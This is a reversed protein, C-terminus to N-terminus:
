FNETNPKKKNKKGETEEEEEEGMEPKESVEPTCYRQLLLHLHQHLDDHQSESTDDLRELHTQKSQGAKLVTKKQTRTKRM